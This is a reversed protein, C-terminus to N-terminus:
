LDPKSLAPFYRDFECRKSFGSTKPWMLWISTPFRWSWYSSRQSQFFRLRLWDDTAQGYFRVFHHVRNPRVVVINVSSLCRKTLVSENVMRGPYTWTGITTFVCEISLFSPYSRHDREWIVYGCKWARSYSRSSASNVLLFWAVSM